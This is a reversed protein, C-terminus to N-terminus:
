AAEWHWTTYGIDRCVITRGDGAVGTEGHEARSCFEGPEYCGGSPTKPYCGAAATTGAPAPSSPATGPAAAAAHGTVAISSVPHVEMWGHDADLVYSGTVQVTDGAAPITVTSRYGRCAAMADAQTVTGYCIVEAVLDGDQYADNAQNVLSAAVVVRIHVDGDPEYTVDRVTGTVTKCQSVVHLRYPHYIHQWLGADCGAPSGTRGPAPHSSASPAASHGPVALASPSSTAGPTSAGPTSTRTASACGALTMCAFAAAILFPNRM